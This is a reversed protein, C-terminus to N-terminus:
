PAMSERRRVPVIWPRVAMTLAMGALMGILMAVHHAFAPAELMMGLPHGLLRGGAMMGFIMGAADLLLVWALKLPFKRYVALCRAWQLSPPFAFLLMLLNMGNIWRFWGSYVPTMAAGPMSHHAATHTQMAALGGDLQWGWLMGFGGWALMLLLMDTHAPLLRRVLWGQAALGGLALTVAWIEIRYQAPAAGAWELLLVQALLFLFISLAILREIWVPPTRRDATWDGHAMGLNM